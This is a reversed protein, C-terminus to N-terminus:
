FPFHKMELAAGQLKESIIATVAFPPVKIWFLPFGLEILSIFLNEFTLCLVDNEVSGEASYSIDHALFDNILVDSLLFYNSFDAVVTIM